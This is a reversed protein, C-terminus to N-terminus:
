EHSRKPYDIQMQSPDAPLYIVAVQDGLKLRKANEIGSINIRKRYTVGGVGYEVSVWTFNGGMLTAVGSLFRHERVIVASAKGVYRRAQNEYHSKFFSFAGWVLLVMLAIGVLTIWPEKM